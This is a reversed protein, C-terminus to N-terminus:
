QLKFTVPMTYEVRVAEGNQMGPEWKPMSGVLRVAEGDLDDSVKKVVKVNSITGDAEVVFNVIVRGQIGAKHAAEPYRVNEGLFKMMEAPGGPFKPMQEVVNFVKEYDSHHSTHEEASAVTDKKEVVKVHVNSKTTVIVAGNRAEEGYLAVASEMGLVEVHDIYKPDLAEVV